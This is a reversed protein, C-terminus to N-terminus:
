LRPHRLASNQSGGGTVLDETSSRVFEYQLCDAVRWQQGPETMAPPM